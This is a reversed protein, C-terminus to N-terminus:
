NSEKDSILLTESLIYYNNKICTAKALGWIILKIIAILVHMVAVLLKNWVASILVLYHPSLVHRLIYSPVFKQGQNKVNLWKPPLNKKKKKLNSMMATEMFTHILKPTQVPKAIMEMSSDALLRLVNSQQNLYDM